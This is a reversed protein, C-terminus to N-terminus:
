NEAKNLSFLFANKAFNHSKRERESHMSMSILIVTLIPFLFISFWLCDYQAETGNIHSLFIMYWVQHTVCYFHLGIYGIEFAKNQKYHKLRRRKQCKSIWKIEGKSDKGQNTFRSWYIVPRHKVVRLCHLYNKDSCM